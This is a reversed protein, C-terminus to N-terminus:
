AELEKVLALISPDKEALLYALQMVQQEEVKTKLEALARERREARELAEADVKQFAWATANRPTRSPSSTVTAISIGNRTKVLVADGEVLGPVLTKFAYEKYNGQFMVDVTTTM